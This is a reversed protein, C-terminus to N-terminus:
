SRRRRFAIMPLLGALLAVSGPEPVSTPRFTFNDVFIDFEGIAPTSGGIQTAVLLNSGATPDFTGGAIATLDTGLVGGVTQYSGTGVFNLEFGNNTSTFPSEFRLSLAAGAPALVDAFVSFNTPNAVPGIFQQLGGFAFGTTGDNFLTLVAAQSGNVGGTASLGLSATASGASGGGAGSFTTSDPLGEPVLDDFSQSFGSGDHVFFQTPAMVNGSEFDQVITQADSFTGFSFAIAVALVASTKMTLRKM